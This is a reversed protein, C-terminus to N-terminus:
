MILGTTMPNWIYIQGIKCTKQNIKTFQQTSRGVLELLVWISRLLSYEVFISQKTLCEECKCKVKTAKTEQRDDTFLLYFLTVAGDVLWRKQCLIERASDCINRWVFRGWRRLALLFLHKWLIYILTTDMAHTQKDRTHICCFDIEAMALFHSFVKLKHACRNFLGIM